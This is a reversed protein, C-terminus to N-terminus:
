QKLEKWGRIGINKHYFGMLLGLYNNYNNDNSEYTYVLNNNSNHKNLINYLFVEPSHSNRYDKPIEKESNLEHLDKFTKKAYEGSVFFCEMMYYNSGYNKPSRCIFDVGKIIENLNDNFKDIYSNNIFVDDHSFVIVNYDKKIAEKFGVICGNTCGIKHSQGKFQKFYVNTIDKFINVDFDTRNYLIYVDSNPYHEKEISITNLLTEYRDYVNHIFAIKINNNVM